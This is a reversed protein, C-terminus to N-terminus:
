PPNFNDRMKRGFRFGLGIVSTWILSIWLRDQLPEGMFTLSLPVAVTIFILTLKFANLGIPRSLAV